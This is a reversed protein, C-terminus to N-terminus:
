PRSNQKFSFFGRFNDTYTVPQRASIQVLFLQILLWVAANPRQMHITHSQFLPTLPLYLLIEVSTTTAQRRKSIGTYSNIQGLKPFHQGGGSSLLVLLASYYHLRSRRWKFYVSRQQATFTHLVKVNSKIFLINSDCTLHHEKTQSSYM